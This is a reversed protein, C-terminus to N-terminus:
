ERFNFLIKVSFFSINQSVLSCMILHPVYSVKEYRLSVIFSFISLCIVLLSIVEWKDIIYTQKIYKKFTTKLM